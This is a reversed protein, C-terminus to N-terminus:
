RDMIMLSTRVIRILDCVQEQETNFVSRLAWYTYHQADDISWRLERYDMGYACHQLYYEAQELDYKRADPITRAIYYACHTIWFLYGLSQYDQYNLTRLPYLKDLDDHDQRDQHDWFTMTARVANIENRLAQAKRTKMPALSLQICSHANRLAIQLDRKSKDPMCASLYQKAQVLYEYRATKLNRAAYYAACTRWFLYGYQLHDM